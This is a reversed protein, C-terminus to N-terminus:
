GEGGAAPRAEPRQFLQDLSRCLQELERGLEAPEEGTGARQRIEQAQRAVREVRGGLEDAMANLRAALGGLQDKERLAVRVTLDGQGVRTLAQELRLLPGGVRHSIMLAVWYVILLLALIVLGNLGLLFLLKKGGSGNGWMLVLGALSFCSALMAAAAAICFGAIFNRQFERHVYRRHRREGSFTSAM